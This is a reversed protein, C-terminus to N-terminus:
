QADPGGNDPQPPLKARCKPCTVAEPRITWRARTLDIARPREFCLASVQGDERVLHAMHYPRTTM